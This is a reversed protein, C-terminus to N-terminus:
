ISTANDKCSKLKKCSANLQQLHWGLKTCHKSCESKTPTDEQLGFAVGTAGFNKIEDMDQTTANERSNMVEFFYTKSPIVRLAVSKQFCTGCPRLQGCGM